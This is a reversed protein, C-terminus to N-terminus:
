EKKKKKQKEKHVKLRAEDWENETTSDEEPPPPDKIRLPIELFEMVWPLFKWSAIPKGDKIDQLEHDSMSIM